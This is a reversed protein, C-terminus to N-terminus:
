LSLHDRNIKSLLPDKTRESTFGLLLPTHSSCPQLATLDPHQPQAPDWGHAGPGLLERQAGEKVREM